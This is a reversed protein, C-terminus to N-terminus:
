WHSLLCTFHECCMIPTVGRKETTICWLLTIEFPIYACLIEYVEGFKTSLDAVIEHTNQVTDLWFAPYEIIDPINKMGRQLIADLLKFAGPICLGETTTKSKPAKTVLLTNWKIFDACSCFETTCKRGIMMIGLGCVRWKINFYIEFLVARRYKM